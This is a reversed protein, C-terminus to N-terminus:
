FSSTQNFLCRRLAWETDKRWEGDFEVAVPFVTHGKEPILLGLIISSIHATCPRMCEYTVQKGGPGSLRPPPPPVDLRLSRVASVPGM